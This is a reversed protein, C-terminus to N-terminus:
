LEMVNLFGRKVAGESKSFLHSLSRPSNEWWHHSETLFLPPALWLIDNEYKEKWAEGFLSNAPFKILYTCLVLLNKEKWILDWGWDLPGNNFFTCLVLTVVCVRMCRCWFFRDLFIVCGKGQGLTFKFPTGRDRSSDFQTGDLLTGTYHVTIWDFCFILLFDFYNFTLPHILM